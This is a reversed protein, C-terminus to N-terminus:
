GGKVIVAGRNLVIMTDNGVSQPIRIADYGMLAADRGQDRVLNMQGLAISKEEPTSANQADASFGNFLTQSENQITDLDIINADPTLTMTILNTDPHGGAYNSAGMMNQTSYTGNGDIGFGAHYEGSVFADVYQPQDVGRYITGVPSDAVAKDFASGSLVTPLANYGQKDYIQYLVPDGRGKGNFAEGSTFQDGLSKM